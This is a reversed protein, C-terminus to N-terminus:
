EGIIQEFDRLNEKLYSTISELRKKEAESLKDGKHKLEFYRKTSTALRITKGLEELASFYAVATNSPTLPYGATKNYAELVETALRKEIEGPALTIGKKINVVIYPSVPQNNTSTITGDTQMRLHELEVEEFFFAYAGTQLPAEGISPEQEQDIPYLAFDATKIQSKFDADVITKIINNVGELAAEALTTYPVLAPFAGGVEHSIQRLSQTVKEIKSKGLGQCFSSFSLYLRQSNKDKQFDEITAVNEAWITTVNGARVDAGLNDIRDLYHAKLIPKEIDGLGMQSVVAFYDNDFQGAKYHNKYKTYLQRSITNISITFDEAASILANDDRIYPDRLPGPQSIPVRGITVPAM